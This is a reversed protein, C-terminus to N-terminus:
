NCPYAPNLPDCFGLGLTESKSLLLLISNDNMKHLNSHQTFRSSFLGVGGEINTYVPREQIIGTSPKNFESYNYLEEAGVTFIFEIQGAIRLVDGNPPIKAEIFKYFESGMMAQELDENGGTNASIQNQFVWDAYTYLTDYLATKGIQKYHFRITLQYIKGGSATNWKIKVASKPNTWDLTQNANPSILSIKGVVPTSANGKASTGSILNTVVLKYTSGDDQHIPENTKYLINPVNAFTGPDKAISSDRELIITQSVTENNWRELRAEIEGPKYIFSDPVMAMDYANGKGLFAKNIKIYQVADAPNLLGYIVMVEKWKGNVEFDNKCSNTFLMASFLAFGTFVKCANMVKLFSIRFLGSNKM